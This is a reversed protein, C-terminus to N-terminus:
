LIGYVCYIQYVILKAFQSTICIPPCNLKAFLAINLTCQEYHVHNYTINAYMFNPSQLCIWWVVLNFDGGFTGRRHYYMCFCAYVHICFYCTHIIVAQVHAYMNKELYGHMQPELVMGVMWTGNLNHTIQVM